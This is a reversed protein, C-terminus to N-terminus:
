RMAPAPDVVPTSASQAEASSGRRASADAVAEVDVSVHGPLGEGTGQDPLFGGSQHKWLMAYHGGLRLLEDHTGQEVIRGQDLVVLRDMRAITSLRHAIAIVTKGRMLTALQEQIALEVESDLASTAEDLILIPADKLIVRALAVRQRQGGSLKVGREGVHAEYGSREKWDALDVIFDHAQAQRAAAEIEDATAGPRGYAINAAISRHLLSTDQTVMGIAARLSEQTAQGIDQGDIRISGQEVEHFRLLLNVLTSKGAGSRGVLGIREGPAVVLNLDDLVRRGDARGYTFTLHEIRIEGRPVELERADPRDVLSHPVAITEMGEQVIGINEFIGTVEWSVWGSVNAIQWALPLATAVIAAGIAGQSWLVIGIAATTVLLLANMVALTAMFRTIVRMHAAIAATHQDIVDRVHADEDRARAFLKVTLINTYSDVVRGMVHSRVESSAKALDRMRPVFYSLFFVYGAAWCATPVALRWDAFTMLVLTSIGYVAIYWIARISSVVCERVANGTQMVRNAIRGAFDNQFFPWSQRVVHWHSQWRILSTVGPVVANNRVLSDALIALPRGILVLLAMAILGVKADDVAGVRDSSQMLGVLKGIFVPITTDILAVALGTAFMAAYLGRTQRVFHWYFAILGPPPPAVPLRTPRIRREFYSFM